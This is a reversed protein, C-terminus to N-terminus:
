TLTTGVQFHPHVLFILLNARQFFLVQMSTICELVVARGHFILALLFLAAMFALELLDLNLVTLQLLCKRHFLVLKAAQISVVLAEKGVGALLGLKHGGLALGDRSESTLEICQGDCRSSLLPGFFLKDFLKSM